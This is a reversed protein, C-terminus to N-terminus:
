FLYEQLGMCAYNLRSRVAWWPFEGTYMRMPTHEPNHMNDWLEDMNLIFPWAKRASEANQLDYIPRFLALSYVNPNYVKEIRNNVDFYLQIYEIPIRGFADHYWQGRYAFGNFNERAHQLLHPPMATAPADTM